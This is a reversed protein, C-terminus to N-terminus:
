RLEDGSDVDIPLGRNSLESVLYAVGHPGHEAGTDDPSRGIVDDHERM